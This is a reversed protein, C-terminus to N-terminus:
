KLLVAKYTDTHGATSLTYLYVGSSLASANWVFSQQGPTRQGLDYSAVVEGLINHITLNAKAAEPQTWSITTTPNFPNPYNQGLEFALPAIGDNIGVSCEVSMYYPTEDPMGDYDSPAILCIYTGATLELELTQTGYGTTFDLVNTEDCNDIVWMNYSVCAHGTFTMTEDNMLTIEYWDMDRSGGDPTTYTFFTGCIESNCEIDSFIPVDLNCGGNTVDEDTYYGEGEQPLGTCDYPVCPDDCEYHLVFNGENVDYGEVVVFYTGAALEAEVFSPPYPAGSAECDPGDDNSAVITGGDVPCDDWVSLYTDYDTGLM